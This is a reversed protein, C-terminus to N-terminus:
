KASKVTSEVNVGGGSPLCPSVAAPLSVVAAAKAEKKKSFDLPLLLRLLRLRLRRRLLLLKMAAVAEPAAVRSSEPALKISTCEMSAVGVAGGVSRVGRVTRRTVRWTGRSPLLLLPPPLPLPLPAGAEMAVAVRSEPTCVGYFRAIWAHARVCACVCVHAGVLACVYVYACVCVGSRLMYAHRRLFSMPVCTGEAHM